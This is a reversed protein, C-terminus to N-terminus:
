PLHSRLSIRRRSRYRVYIRLLMFPNLGRISFKELYLCIGLFLSKPLSYKRRLLGVTQAFISTKHVKKSKALQSNFYHDMGSIFEKSLSFKDEASKGDPHERWVCFYTPHRLGSGFQAIKLLQVLDSPYKVDVIRPEFNAPLLSSDILAGVSVLCNLDIFLHSESWDLLVESRLHNGMHDIVLRNPYYVIYNGNSNSKFFTVMEALWDNPQPDDSSVFTILNGHKNNWGKNVSYSEGKNELNRLVRFRADQAIFTNIISLTNDNSGDDIILCDFDTHTQHQISRLTGALYKEGNFCPIVVQVLDIPAKM